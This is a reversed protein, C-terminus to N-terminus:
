GQLPASVHEHVILWKGNKKEWIATHRADLEMSQGNKEKVSLHFTITTWAVNGRRNVTLDDAPTLIASAAGDFFNKQVGAKYEAWGNYKLPAVDYFILGSDKDYFEAPADTSLKSWAQYYRAILDKFEPDISKGPGATRAPTAILAIGVILAAVTATGIKKM